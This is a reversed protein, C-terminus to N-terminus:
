AGLPLLRRWPRHRPRLRPGGDVLNGRALVDLQSGCTGKPFRMRSLNIMGKLVRTFRDRMEDTPQGIIVTRTIDTTGDQYQGGSDILFIENMGLARNSDPTAHYHPIAANPGSAPISEFSLDKLEGTQQRFWLLKAAM